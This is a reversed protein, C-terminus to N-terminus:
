TIWWYSDFICGDHLLNGKACWWLEGEDAAMSWKLGDSSNVIKNLHFVLLGKFLVMENKVKFGWQINQKHIFISKIEIRFAVVIIQAWM